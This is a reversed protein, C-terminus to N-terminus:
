DELGLLIEEVRSRIRGNRTASQETKLTPKRKRQWTVKM